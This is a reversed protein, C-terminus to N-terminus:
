EGKGAQQGETPRAAAEAEKIRRSTQCFICREWQGEYGPKGSNADPQWQHQCYPTGWRLINDVMWEYGCFGDSKPKRDGPKMVRASVGAGWGDGWSYHWSKPIGLEEVQKPPLSRVIIYNRGEGSWRGNHSGVNPMNLRFLIRARNAM